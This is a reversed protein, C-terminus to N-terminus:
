LIIELIKKLKELDFVLKYCTAVKINAYNEIKYFNEIIKNPSFIDKSSDSNIEKKINCNCKVRSTEIDFEEYECNYECLSINSIYFDKKRDNLTVDTGDLSNFPSCIDNYFEDNSNFLDYGQSKLHKVLDYTKQDLEIPTYVDIKVKDCFSLNLQDLNYPNFVQYEVQTSVTDNRKIDVKIIILPDDIKYEKKLTEECEGLDILSINNNLNNELNYNQNETTTMQFIVNEGEIIEDKNKNITKNKYEEIFLEFVKDISEKTNLPIYNM